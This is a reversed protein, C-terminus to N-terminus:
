RYVKVQKQVPVQVLKYSVVKARYPQGCHDYKTVYSVVPTKVTEYVIVTKYYYKPPHCDHASASGSLAVVGCTMVIALIANRISLM